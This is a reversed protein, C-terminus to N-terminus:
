RSCCTTAARASCRASSRRCSSGTTTSMEIVKPNKLEHNVNIFYDLIAVRLGLDRGLATRLVQRHARIRRWHRQAQAESFSLHTLVSLMSSYLPQGDKAQDLDELLREERAPGAELLQLLSQRLGVDEDPFKL